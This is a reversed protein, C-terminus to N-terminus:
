GNRVEEKIISATTRNESPETDKKVALSAGGAILISSIGGCFQVLDFAAARWVVVFAELVIATIIAAAFLVRGIDASKNDRGTLITAWFGPEQTVSVERM